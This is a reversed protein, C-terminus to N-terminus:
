LLIRSTKDKKFTRKRSLKQPAGVIDSNLKTPLKNKNFHYLKDVPKHKVKGKEKWCTKCIDVFGCIM